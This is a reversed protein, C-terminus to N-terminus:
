IQTSNATVELGQDAFITIPRHEGGVAFYDSECVPSQTNYIPTPVHLFCLMFSFTPFFQDDSTLYAAYM